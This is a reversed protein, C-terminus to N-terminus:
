LALAFSLIFIIIMLVIYVIYSIGKTQKTINGNWILGFIIGGFFCNLFSITASNRIKPNATFYSPYVGCVYVFLLVLFAIDLIFFIWYGVGVFDGSYRSIINWIFSCVIGLISFGVSTTFQLGQPNINQYYSGYGPQQYPPQYTSGYQPPANQPPGANTGDLSMGGENNYTDYPQESEVKAGCNGCFKVGEALEENCFHCKNM